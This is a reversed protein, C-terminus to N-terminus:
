LPIIHAIADSASYATFHTFENALRWCRSLNTASHISTSEFIRDYGTGKNRNWNRGFRLGTIREHNHNAGRSWRNITRVFIHPVTRFVPRASAETAAYAVFACFNPTQSLNTRQPGPWSL